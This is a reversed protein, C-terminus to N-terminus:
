EEKVYEKKINIDFLQIDNSNMEGSVKGDVGKGLYNFVKM